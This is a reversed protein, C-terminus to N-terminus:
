STFVYCFSTLRKLKGLDDISNVVFVFCKEAVQFFVGLDLSYRAGKKGVAELVRIIFSSFDPDKNM